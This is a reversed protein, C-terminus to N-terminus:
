YVKMPETLCTMWAPFYDYEVQAHTILECSLLYAIADKLFTQLKEDPEFWEHTIMPKIDILCGMVSQSGNTERFSFCEKEYGQAFPQDSFNLYEWVADASGEYDEDVTIYFVLRGTRGDGLEGLKEVRYASMEYLARREELTPAQWSWSTKKELVDMYPETLTVDSLDHWISWDRPEEPEEIEEAAQEAIGVVESLKPDDPEQRSCAASNLILLGCLFVLFRKM